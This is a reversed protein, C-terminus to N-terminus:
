KRFTGSIMSWLFGSGWAAHMVAIAIPLGVILAVRRRQVATLLGAVSLVALYLGIEILLATRAWSDFFGVVLLTVLSLVFLPPLAQRWRITSPHRRLMQWKWLGYRWYQRALAQLTPRAFYVSRIAPDLWIKGGSRRIRANFEYDENTLLTEDFPGIRDVLSRRFSGFPVTDVEGARPALRYQADGAGLRHAAAAAVAEAIPTQAGPQIEWVGGVNLGRETSLARVCREIYDPYPMSHADLRVIIEGTAAHIARNLAAPISGAANDVISLALDPHQAQFAGIVARTDDTSFGDSIIVELRERPYTQSLIGDLLKLITARENYCPVIVSVTSNM